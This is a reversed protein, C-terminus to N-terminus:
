VYFVERLIGVVALLFFVGFMRAQHIDGAKWNHWILAPNSICWVANAGTHSGLTVCLACIISLGTYIGVRNISPYKLPTEPICEPCIGEILDGSCFARSCVKCNSIQDYGPMAKRTILSEFFKM